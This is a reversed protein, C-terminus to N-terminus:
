HVACTERHNERIILHLEYLRAQIREAECWLEELKTSSSDGDLKLARVAEGTQALRSGLKALEEHISVTTDEAM